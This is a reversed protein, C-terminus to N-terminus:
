LIPCHSTEGLCVLLFTYRQLRNNRGLGNAREHIWADPQKVEARATEGLNVIVEHIFDDSWKCASRM